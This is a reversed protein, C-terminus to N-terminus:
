NGFELTNSNKKDRRQKQKLKYLMTRQHCSTKAMKVLKPLFVTEVTRLGTCSLGCNMVNTYPSLINLGNM